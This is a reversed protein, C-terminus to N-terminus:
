FVWGGTTILHAYTVIGSDEVAVLSAHWDEAGDATVSKDGTAGAPSLVGAAVYQIVGDLYETFTPDGGAPPTTTSFGDYHAAAYIVVSNDAVPTISTATVTSTTGTNITALPLAASAGSICVISGQTTASAHTVTYDGSEGSAVKRAIKMVLHDNSAPNIDSPFGTLLDFGSPLTSPIDTLAYFLEFVLILVDGDEIGAPATITTNTRSAYTTASTSRVAAAM